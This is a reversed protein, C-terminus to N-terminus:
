CRLHHMKDNMFYNLSVMDPFVKITDEDSNYQKVESKNITIEGIDESIEFEDESNVITTEIDEKKM